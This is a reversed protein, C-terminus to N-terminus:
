RSWLRLSAGSPLPITQHCPAIAQTEECFSWAGKDNKSFEYIHLQAKFFFKNESEPFIPM